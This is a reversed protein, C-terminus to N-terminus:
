DTVGACAPTWDMKNQIGAKAPIVVKLFPFQVLSLLFYAFVLSLLPLAPPIQLTTMLWAVVGISVLRLMSGGAFMSFFAKNSRQLSWSLGYFAALSEIAAWVLIWTTVSPLSPRFFLSLSILLFSSLAIASLGLHRSRHNM